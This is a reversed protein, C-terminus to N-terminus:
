KRMKKSRLFLQLDDRVRPHLLDVGAQQALPDVPVGLLLVLVETVEGVIVSIIFWVKLVSVMVHSNPAVYLWSIDEQSVIVSM